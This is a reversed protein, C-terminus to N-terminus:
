GGSGGAQLQDSTMRFPVWQSMREAGLGMYFGLAMENWDLCTWELRGCGRALVEAAFHKFFARGVGRRRFAPLVFIDEVYLTPRALFTSYTEFTIAYAAAEGEVYALWAEARPKPGWLDTTLREKAQDDPPDLGEYDALAEILQLLTPADTSESRRIAPEKM